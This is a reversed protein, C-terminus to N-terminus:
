QLKKNTENKLLTIILEKQKKIVARDSELELEYLRQNEEQLKVAKDLEKQLEIVVSDSKVDIKRDANINPLNDFKETKITDNKQGRIFALSLFTLCIVSVIKM